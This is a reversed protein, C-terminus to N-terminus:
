HLDTENVVLPIVLPQGDQYVVDNDLQLQGSALMAIAQPYIRYEGQQVRSALSAASDDPQIAVRYQLFAPGADLEPIVFHVSSGHWSEGADLARQYTNLGPYAPLLSPHINIMRGAYETVLEAALIRMFGALVILDPNIQQLTEQLAADFDQRRAFSKYDVTIGPIGAVAARELGFAQPNDSLVAVIETNAIQADIIAQLNTGGGSVMILTRMM